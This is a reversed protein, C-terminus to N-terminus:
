ILNNEAFSYYDEGIIIHDNLRIGILEGADKIRKTVYIDEKSPTTIGSPHNHCLIINVCGCLLARIYIERPSIIAAKVSGHSLEFVGIVKNKTDNAMMYVHEEALHKMDFLSNMMDVVSNPSDLKKQKYNIAKEKVLINLNDQCLKAKYTTIRMYKEGLISKELLLM